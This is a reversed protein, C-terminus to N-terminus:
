FAIFTFMISDSYTGAEVFPLNVISFNMNVVKTGASENSLLTIPASSLSYPQSDFTFSYPIVDTTTALKLIGGNVSTVQLNYPRTAAVTMVVPSPTTPYNNGAVLSSGFSFTATSLSISVSSFSVRLTVTIALTGSALTRLSGGPPASAGVYASFLFTNSYEGDPTNSPLAPVAVTFNVYRFANTLLTGSLVPTSANFVLTSGIETTTGTLRLLVPVSSANTNGALYLRRAGVGYPSGNSTGSVLLYFPDSANGNNDLRIGLTATGSSEGSQVGYLLPPNTSEGRIKTQSYVNIAFILMMGCLLLKKVKRM